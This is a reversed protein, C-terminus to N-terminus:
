KRRARSTAPASVREVALVVGLAMLVAVISSGGKSILPLPVGLTPLLNLVVAINVLAQIVIWLMVGTAAM